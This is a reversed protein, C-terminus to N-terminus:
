TEFEGVTFFRRFFAILAHSHPVDAAAQARPLYQENKNDSFQFAAKVADAYAAGSAELDSRIFADSARFCVTASELILGACRVHLEKAM